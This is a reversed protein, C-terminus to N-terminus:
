EFIFFMSQSSRFTKMRTARPPPSEAAALSSPSLGAVTPRRM